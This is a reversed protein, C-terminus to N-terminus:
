LMPCYGMAILQAVPHASEIITTGKFCHVPGLPHGLKLEGNLGALPIHQWAEFKKSSHSCVPHVDEDNQDKEVTQSLTETDERAEMVYQSLFTHPDHTHSAQVRPGRIDKAYNEWIVSSSNFAILSKM